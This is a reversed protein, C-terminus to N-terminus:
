WSSTASGYTTVSSASASKTDFIRGGAASAMLKSFYSHGHVVGHTRSQALGGDGRDVLAVGPQAFQAVGHPLAVVEAPLLMAGDRRDETVRPLEAVPDADRLADAAELGGEADREVGTLRRKEAPEGGRPTVERSAR